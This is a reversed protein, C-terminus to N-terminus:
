AASRKWQQATASSPWTRISGSPMTGCLACVTETAISTL